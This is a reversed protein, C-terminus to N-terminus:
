HKYTAALINSTIVM